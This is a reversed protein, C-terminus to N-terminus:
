KIPRQIDGSQHFAPFAGAATEPNQLMSRVTLGAQRGAAAVPSLDAVPSM